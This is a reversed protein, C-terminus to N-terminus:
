MSTWGILVKDVLEGNKDVIISTITGSRQRPNNHYGTVIWFEGVIETGNELTCRHSPHIHVHVFRTISFNELAVQVAEYAHVNYHSTDIGHPNRLEIYGSDILKMFVLANSPTNVMKGEFTINAYQEEAEFTYVYFGDRYATFVWDFEQISRRSVIKEEKKWDDPFTCNSYYIEFNIPKSANFAVTVSEGSNIWRGYIYRKDTWVNGRYIRGVQFEVPLLSPVSSVGVIGGASGSAHVEEFMSMKSNFEFDVVKHVDFFTSRIGDVLVDYAYGEVDVVKAEQLAQSWEAIMREGLIWNGGSYALLVGTKPAGWLYVKEPLNKVGNIEKIVYVDSYIPRQEEGAPPAPGFWPVPFEEKSLNGRIRLYVRYGRPVDRWEGKWLPIGAASYERENVTMENQVFVISLVM